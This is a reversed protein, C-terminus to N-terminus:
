GCDLPFPPPSTACLGSSGPSRAAFARRRERSLKSYEAYASDPLAFTPM